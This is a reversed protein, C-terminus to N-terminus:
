ARRFGCCLRDRLDDMLFPKTMTDDMRAALCRKREEPGAFGTVAIILVSRAAGEDRRGDTASCAIGAAEAEEGDRISTAAEIGSMIPMQIDMLVAHFPKGQKRQLAV